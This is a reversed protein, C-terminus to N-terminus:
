NKSGVCIHCGPLEEINLHTLKKEGSKSSGLLDTVVTWMFLNESESSVPKLIDM